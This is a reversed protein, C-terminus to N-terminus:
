MYKFNVKLEKFGQPINDCMVIGIRDYAWRGVYKMYTGHYDGCGNGNGDACLIPLPHITYARPREIPIHVYEKKDYNVLVINQKVRNFNPFVEPKDLTKFNRYAKTANPIREELFCVQDYVTFEENEKISTESYQGCWVFPMADVHNTQCCYYLMRIAAEVYLNGVYAHEVMKWFNHYETPHCFCEIVKKDSMKVKGKEIKFDKDLCIAMFSQGM